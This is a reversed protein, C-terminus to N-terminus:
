DKSAIYYHNMIDGAVQKAEVNTFGAEALKRRALQEGGRGSGEGAVAAAKARGIM